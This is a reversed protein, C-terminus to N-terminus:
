GEYRREERAEQEAESIPTLPIEAERERMAEIKPSIKPHFLEGKPVPSLGAMSRIEEVTFAGTQALIAIVRAQERMFMESHIKVYIEPILHDYKGNYREKIHRSAIRLLGEAIRNALHQYRLFFFTSAIIEAAFTTRGPARIASRPIGISAFIADNLQDLLPNPDTFATKPEIVEIEVDSLTIIARDPRDPSLAAKYEDM